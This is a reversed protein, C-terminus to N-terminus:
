CRCRRGRVLRPRSSQNPKPLASVPQPARLLNLRPAIKTLTILRWDLTGVDLEVFALARTIPGWARSRASPCTNRICLIDRPCPRVVRMGGTFFDASSRGDANLLARRTAIMPTPLSKRPSSAAPTSTTRFNRCRNFDVFTSKISPPTAGSLKVASIRRKIGDWMKSTSAVSKPALGPSTIRASGSAIEPRDMEVWVM